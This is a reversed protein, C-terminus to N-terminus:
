GQISLVFCFLSLMMVTKSYLCFTYVTEGPCYILTSKSNCSKCLRDSMRGDKLRQGESQSTLKMNQLLGNFWSEILSKWDSHLWFIKKCYLSYYLMRLGSIGCFSHRVLSWYMISGGDNKPIRCCMWTIFILLHWLLILGWVTCCELTHEFNVKHIVSEQIFTFRVGTLSFICQLAEM